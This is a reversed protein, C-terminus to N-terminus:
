SRNIASGGRQRIKQQVSEEKKVGFRAPKRTPQFRPSIWTSSHMRIPPCRDRAEERCEVADFCSQSSPLVLDGFRESDLGDADEKCEMSRGESVAGHPKSLTRKKNEHELGTKM